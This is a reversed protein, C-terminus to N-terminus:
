VVVCQLHAEKHKGRGVSGPVNEIRNWGEWSFIMDDRQRVKSNPVKLQGTPFVHALM